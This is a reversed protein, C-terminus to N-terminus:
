QGDVQTDTQLGACVAGGGWWMKASPSQGKWKDHHEWSPIRQCTLEPRHTIRRGFVGKGKRGQVEQVRSDLVAHM